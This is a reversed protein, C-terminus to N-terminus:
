PLYTYLTNQYNVRNQSMISGHTRAPPTRRRARTGPHHSPGISPMARPSVIPSAIRAGCARRARLTHRFRAKQYNPGTQSMAACVARNSRSEVDDTLPFRRDQNPSCLRHGTRSEKQTIPLRATILQRPDGMPSHAWPLRTRSMPVCPALPDGKIARITM